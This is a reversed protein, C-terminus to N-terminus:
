EIAAQEKANRLKSLEYLPIFEFKNLPMWMARFYLLQEENAEIISVSKTGGGMNHPYFIMSPYKDPNEKMDNEIVQARPAMKGRNSLDYESFAIYKM